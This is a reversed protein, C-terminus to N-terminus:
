DFNYLNSQKSRYSMKAVSIYWRSSNEKMNSALSLSAEKITVCDCICRTALCSFVGSFSIRTLQPGILRIKRLFIRVNQGNGFRTGVERRYESDKQFFNSDKDRLDYAEMLLMTNELFFQINVWTARLIMLSRRKAVQM